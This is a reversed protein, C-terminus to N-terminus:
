WKGLPCTPSDPAFLKYAISKLDMFCGCVGCRRQNPRWQECTYCIRISKEAQEKYKNLEPNIKQHNNDKGGNRIMM